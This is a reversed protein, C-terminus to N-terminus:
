GSNHFGHDRKQLFVESVLPNGIREIQNYTRNPDVTNTSATLDTNDNSCAAAGLVVAASALAVRFATTLHMPVRIETNPTHTPSNPVTLPQDDGLRRDQELRRCHA